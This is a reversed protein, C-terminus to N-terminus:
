NKAFKNRLYDIENNLSIVDNPMDTFDGYSGTRSNLATLDGNNFRAILSKLSCSDAHSQILAYSDVEGTPVLGQEGTLDNITDLQYTIAIRNGHPTFSSVDRDYATNFKM